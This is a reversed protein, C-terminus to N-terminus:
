RLDSTARKPVTPKLKDINRLIMPLSIKGGASLLEDNVFIMPIQSGEPLSPCNVDFLDFYQVQVSEGYQVQLKGNVWKALERWSEKIGDKCVVPAGVIKVLISENMAWLM